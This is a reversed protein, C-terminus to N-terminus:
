GNAPRFRPPPTEVSTMDPNAGIMKASAEDDSQYAFIHEVMEPHKAAIMWHNRTEIAREPTGRTAHLLSFRM